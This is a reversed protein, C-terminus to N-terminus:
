GSQPDDVYPCHRCGRGCCTGRRALFGASLVFLGSEPDLYGAEGAALAADHVALIRARDPHEPSLRSPHPEPLPRDALPRREGSM